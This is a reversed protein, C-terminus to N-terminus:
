PRPMEGSLRLTRRGNTVPIEMRITGAAERVSIAGLSDLLRLGPENEPLVYAVMREVGAEVASLLLTQLLIRGLGVGQYDDVVGLALEALTRDTADRVFRAAGVGPRGPEDLAIAGWAVHREQDVDALYRLEAESLEEVVRHFRLYRSPPSMRAVAWAIESRDDAVIPRIRVRRGDRLWVNFSRPHRALYEATIESSRGRREDHSWIM